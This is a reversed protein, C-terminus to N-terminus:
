GGALADGVAKLLQERGFPKELVVAGQPAPAAPDGPHGSMYIAAMRPCKARARRVLEPGSMGPMRLDAVILDIGGEGELIEEAREGSAAVHFSYGGRELMRAVVTLISADDDVVLITGGTVLEEGGLLSCRL